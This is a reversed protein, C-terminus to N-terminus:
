ILDKYRFIKKKKEVFPHREIDGYLVVRDMLSAHIILPWDIVIGGHSYIRGNKMVVADGPLYPPLPIEDAYLQILEIYLEENRHLMFDPSYHMPVIHPILGVREYIEIILMGCDVGAGKVRAEHHFPTGIWSKAEEVIKKRLADKDM